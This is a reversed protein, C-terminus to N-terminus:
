MQKILVVKKKNNGTKKEIESEKIDEKLSEKLNGFFNMKGRHIGM